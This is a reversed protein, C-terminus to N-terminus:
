CQQLFGLLLPDLHHIPSRSIPPSLYNKYQTDENYTVGQALTKIRPTDIISSMSKKSIRCAISYRSIVNIIFQQNTHLLSKLSSCTNCGFIAGNKALTIISQDIGCKFHHSLISINIGSTLNCYQAIQTHLIDAIEPIGISIVVTPPGLSRLSQVTRATSLTLTTGVICM